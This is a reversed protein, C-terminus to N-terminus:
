GRTICQLYKRNKYKEGKDCKKTRSKGETDKNEAIKLKIAIEEQTRRKRIERKGVQKKQKKDIPTVTRKKM